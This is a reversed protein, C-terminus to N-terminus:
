LQTPGRASMSWAVKDAPASESKDNDKGWSWYLGLYAYTESQGVVTRGLCFLLQFAPKSFYYYGGFDFM